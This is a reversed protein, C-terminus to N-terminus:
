FFAVKWWRVWIKEFGNEMKRLIGEVLWHPHTVILELTPFTRRLRGM